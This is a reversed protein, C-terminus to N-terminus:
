TKYKFRELEEQLRLAKDQAKILKNKLDARHIDAKKKRDLAEKLQQQLKYMKRDQMELSKAIEPNIRDM